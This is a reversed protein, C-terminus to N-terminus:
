PNKPSAYGQIFNLGAIGALSMAAYHLGTAIKGKAGNLTLRGYEYCFPMAGLTRQKACKLLDKGLQILTQGNGKYALGLVGLVAVGALALPTIANGV